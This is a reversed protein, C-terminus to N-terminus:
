DTVGSDVNSFSNITEQGVLFLTTTYIKHHRGYRINKEKINKAYIIRNYQMDLLSLIHFCGGTKVAIIITVSEPSNWLAHRLVIKILVSSEVDLCIIWGL